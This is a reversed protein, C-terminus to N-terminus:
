PNKLGALNRIQQESEPALDQIIEVFSKNMLRQARRILLPAPNGPETREFFLCIRELQRVADDRDRIEGSAPGAARAEGTAALAAAAAGDAESPEGALTEDCVQVVTKLMNGLPRLDTAMEMGVKNVLLKYLANVKDISARAADIGSRDQLAAATIAAAIQAASRPTEARGPELKGASVLIDRVAVRGLSGTPVMLADRVDQLLMDKAALGALANLRDAPNDDEDKDLEPYVSEWYRELLGHLLTLGDCLGATNDTHVLARTLWVAVHLDKTRALLATARDRVDSWDPEEAPRVYSGLVQEPTGKVIRELEKFAPDYDMKKPGCPPSDATPALLTDIDQV